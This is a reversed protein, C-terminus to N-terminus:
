LDTVIPFADPARPAKEGPPDALDLYRVDLLRSPELNGMAALLERQPGEDGGRFVLAAAPLEIPPKTLALALPQAAPM